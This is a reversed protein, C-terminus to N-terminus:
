KTNFLMLIKNKCFIIKSLLQVGNDKDGEKINFKILKNNNGTGM